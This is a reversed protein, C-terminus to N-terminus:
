KEEQSELIEVFERPTVIKIGEYEKLELLHQDGSVIYDAQSEIAAIIYKDDTPDKEIVKLKLLGPTEIGSSQVNDIFQNIQEDTKPCRKRIRDYFFVKRIEEIISDSVILWFKGKEWADIIKAPAGDTILAASIFVNTDLVVNLM